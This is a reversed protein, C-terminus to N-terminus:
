DTVRDAIMDNLRLWPQREVAVLSQLQWDEINVDGYCHPVRVERRIEKQVHYLLENWLRGRGIGRFWSVGSSVGACKLGFYRLHSM